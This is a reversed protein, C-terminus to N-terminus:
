THTVNQIKKFFVGLFSVVSRGKNDETYKDYEKLGELNSVVYEKLDCVIGFATYGKESIVVRRQEEIMNPYKIADLVYGRFKKRIDDEISEPCVYFDPSYDMYYNRSYILPFVEM